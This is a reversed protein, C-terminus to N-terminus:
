ECVLIKRANHTVMHVIKAFFNLAHLTVGLACMSLIMARMTLRWKCVTLSFNSFVMKQRDDTVRVGKRPVSHALCYKQLFFACVTIVTQLILYLHGRIRLCFSFSDRVIRACYGFVLYSDRVIHVHSGFLGFHTM